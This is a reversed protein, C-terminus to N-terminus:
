DSWSTGEYENRGKWFGDGLKESSQPAEMNAVSDLYKEFIIRGEM